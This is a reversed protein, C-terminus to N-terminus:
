LQFPRFKPILSDVSRFLDLDCVNTDPSQALQVVLKSKAVFRKSKLLTKPREPADAPIKLRGGGSIVYFWKEDADM